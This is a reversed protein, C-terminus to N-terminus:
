ADVLSSEQEALAGILREDALLKGLDTHLQRLQALTWNRVIENGNIVLEIGPECGYLNVSAAVRGSTYGPTNDGVDFDLWAAHNDPWQLRALRVGSRRGDDVVTVIPDDSAAGLVADLAQEVVDGGYTDALEVLRGAVRQADPSLRDFAARCEPHQATEAYTLPAADGRGYAVAAAIMQEPIDTALLSRLANLQEITAEELQVGDREIYILDPSDQATLRWGDSTQAEVIGSRRTPCVRDIEGFIASGDSLTSFPEQNRNM